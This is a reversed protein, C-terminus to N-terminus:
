LMGLFLLNEQLDVEMNQIPNEREEGFILPIQQLPTLIM